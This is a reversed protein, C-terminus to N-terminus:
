RSNNYIQIIFYVTTAVTSIESATRVITRWATEKSKPIFIMDGTVLSPLFQIKGETLAKQLDVQLKQNEGSGVSERFINIKQIDAASTYGGAIKLADLINTTSSVQYVGPKNVEGILTIRIIPTFAQHIPPIVKADQSIPVFITDSEMLIPNLNLDGSTLYEKINVTEKTTNNSNIRMISIKDIVADDIFGGADSIADMVRAGKVMSYKGPKVVQGMVNVAFPPEKEPKTPVFVMDGLNVIPNASSDGDILFKEFDVNKRSVGKDSKSLIYVDKALALNNIGGALAMARSLPLPDEVETIGPKNVAGFFAIYKYEPEEPKPKRPIFLVDDSKLVPNASLDNQEIFREFDIITEFSKKNKDAVNEETRIIRIHNIDALPTFGGAKTIIEQITTGEPIKVFSPLKVEGLVHVNFGESPSISVFVTPDVIYVKLKETLMQSIKMATQGVVQTSGIPMPLTINGNPDIIVTGSLSERQWVTVTVIDGRKAVYEQNPQAQMIMLLFFILETM